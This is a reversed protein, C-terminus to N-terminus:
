IPRIRVSRFKVTGRGWQLAVPGSAFRSDTVDVTTQGNLVVILRPGRVILDFTNWKGGARPAPQAVPAVKVIAGTAFTQDPRQDFINAEYCSEDTIQAPNQCRMLIGSHAADSARFEVRM